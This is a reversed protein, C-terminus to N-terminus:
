IHGKNTLCFSHLSDLLLSPTVLPAQDSGITNIGVRDAGWAMFDNKPELLSKVGNKCDFVPFELLHKTIGSNLAM